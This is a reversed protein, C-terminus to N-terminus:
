GEPQDSPETPEAQGTPDSSETRDPQDTPRGFRGTDLARQRWREPYGPGLRARTNAQQLPEGCASCVVVAEAEHRCTLHEMVVPPGAEGSLWRNGWSMMAALVGFFDRGMETLVYEYRPPHQQYPVKEMLGEDVLRTLRQTLVNRGINLMRQFEDFRRVGYYAERLVLPTWWDGILDVTRAVGCPWNAFPTRKM